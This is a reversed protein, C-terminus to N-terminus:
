RGLTVVPELPSKRLSSRPGALPNQPEYTRHLNRSTTLARLRPPNSCRCAASRRPLERVDSCTTMWAARIDSWSGLNETIAWILRVSNGTRSAADAAIKGCFDEAQARVEAPIVLLFQDGGSSGLLMPSLGLEALLARPIVESSLSIWYARGDLDNASSRLFEETGLIKGHLFIQFSM